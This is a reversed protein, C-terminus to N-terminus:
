LGFYYALACIIITLVILKIVGTGKRQIERLLYFARIEAINNEPNLYGDLFGKVVGNETYIFLKHDPSRSIEKWLQQKDLVNLENLIEQKIM